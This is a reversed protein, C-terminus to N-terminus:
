NTTSRVSGISKSCEALNAQKGQWNLVNLGDEFAAPYKNEPALRYGVALVIIDCLKSLRWCFLDNAVSDNSGSVWGGGHFQLM